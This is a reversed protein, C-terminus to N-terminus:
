LLAWTLPGTPASFVLGPRLDWSVLLQFGLTSFLGRAVARILPASSSTTWSIRGPPMGAM